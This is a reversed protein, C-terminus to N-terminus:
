RAAPPPNLVKRATVHKMLEDKDLFYTSKMRSKSFLERAQDDWHASDRHDSEGLPLVTYSQPPDSLIVLQTSTQGGQGVMEEGVQEFSIARPTAMGAEALTGGGVPYTRGGTRGVRFYQGYPLEVTGFRDRLWKAGRALADVVHADSLGVPPEVAQRLPEDDLARKFAYYAMAKTSGADSRRDWRQIMQVVRESDADRARGRVKDWAIQVRGQWLEAHYVQPSFAIDRAQELTVGHAADLLDLVMAARQHPPRSSDNYVYPRQAYREPTLPSDKMLVSPSSNCNQMYGQPPNAIQVLEGFPLIGKWEGASTWGPLPRGPDSGQARIPVRGNRVYYLDGQITGVMVNQAMLQLHALARKMEALNRATMMAHMQDILGVEESYPIAMAYAKGGRRAVVPGHHTSELEVMREVVRGGERVRITEKRVIMDRWQGDYQYQRPNAPNLEEEFVDSTDPGGTTMAVSAWRSHGLSVFPVGLIGVGSVAYDGAYVREEYFRFLGYWGLHPDILAIPARLATRSPALLWQNSGRDAVPEPHIGARELDGRAEGEPWGWIIYRVLAVVQAPDLGPAWAPVQEPHEEMFRRIGRQYAELCGRMAPSIREYNARSIAAHRWLRQHLDHPLWDAGFAEALTGEARRYNLLLEELRDEAQAYGCAFAADALTTAFIHPIGFEDRFITVEEARAPTGESVAIPGVAIAIALRIAAIRNMM